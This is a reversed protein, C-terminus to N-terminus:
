GTCGHIDAQLDVFILRYMWSYWDACGCIDVQVDM